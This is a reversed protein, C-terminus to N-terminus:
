RERQTILKWTIQYWCRTRETSQSLSQWSYQAKLTNTEEGETNTQVSWPQTGDEGVQSLILPLTRHWHDSTKKTSSINISHAMSSLLPDEVETVDAAGLDEGSCICYLIGPIRWKIWCSHVRNSISLACQSTSFASSCTQKKSLLNKDRFARIANSNLFKVRTAVDPYAVISLQM